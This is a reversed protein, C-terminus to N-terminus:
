AGGTVGPSQRLEAPTQILGPQAVTGDRNNGTGDRNNGTGRRENGTRGPSNDKYCQKFLVALCSDKYCQKFLVARHPPNVGRFYALNICARRRQASPHRTGRRNAAHVCLQAAADLYDQRPTAASLTQEAKATSYIQGTM